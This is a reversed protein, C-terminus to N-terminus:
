SAKISPGKHGKFKAKKRSLQRAIRSLAEDVGTFFNDGESRAHMEIDHARVHVDVRLVNKEATFTFEVRFKKMDFKQLKAIRESVYNTLEDNPPSHRFKFDIRM